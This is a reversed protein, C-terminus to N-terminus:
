FDYPRQPYTFSVKSLTSIMCEYTRPLSKQCFGHKFTKVLKAFIDGESAPMAVSLACVRQPQEAYKVMMVLEENTLFGIFGTLWIDTEPQIEPVQGHWTVNKAKPFLAKMLAGQSSIQFEAPRDGLKLSKKEDVKSRQLKNFTACADGHSFFEIYCDLTKGTSREMTIHIPFGLDPTIIKANRGLFGLVEQRTM